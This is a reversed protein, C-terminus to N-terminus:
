KKMDEQEMIRKLSEARFIVFPPADKNDKAAALLEDLVKRAQDREELKLHLLATLELASFRWPSSAKRLEEMHKLLVKPDESDLGLYALRLLALHRYMEDGATDNIINRYVDKAGEEDGEDQLATAVLLRSLDKYAGSNKSPIDELLNIASKLRKGDISQLARIYQESAELNKSGQYRDLFVKGATLLICGLIVAYVHNQYKKWLELWREEKAEERLEDFIDVM